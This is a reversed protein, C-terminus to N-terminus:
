ALVERLAAVLVQNEDRSRVTVRLHDSSLGPFTSGTRVALGRELLGAQVGRGDSVKLLLFNARSPWVRVGPVSALAHALEARADATEIAVRCATTRDSACLELARLALANVSWPQRSLRLLAVLDAPGLLYGARLGPLSWLKTISRLVVLGPIDSRSALSEEDFNFEMFAEDVVLVRGPRALRQLIKSPTVTGTPNNPNGLVVLDARDDVRAPDLTLDSPDLFVRRVECGTSSLAVEAETFSPHICVASEPRLGAAILWFAEASGNLPLVEDTSRDHRIALSHLAASDDPYASLDKMRTVLDDCLGGPSSGAVNVTFDLSGPPVLADGHVRLSAPITRPPVAKLDISRGAVILVARESADALLQAAQGALDLFRRMGAGPPLLGMSAEDAVVVSHGRRRRATDAFDCIRQLAREWRERGEPGLAEVDADPWLREEEMLRAIWGATGDVLVPVDEGVQSLADLPDIGEITEWNSPRRHRHQDIREAMEEDVASGTAVYAIHGYASVLREAFESKGSRVGGLVVTLGM